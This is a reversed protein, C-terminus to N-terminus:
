NDAEIDDLSITFKIFTNMGLYNNYVEPKNEEMNVNNNDM